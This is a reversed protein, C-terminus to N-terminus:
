SSGRLHVTGLRPGPRVGEGEAVHHAIPCLDTGPPRESKGCGLQEILVVRYGVQALDELSMLHDHTAGPGGHLCLLTGKTPKGYSRYFLKFGLIKVYGETPEM